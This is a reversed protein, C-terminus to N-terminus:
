HKNRICTRMIDMVKNHWNTAALDIDDEPLLNDWDVEGILQSAM